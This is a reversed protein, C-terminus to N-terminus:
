RSAVEDMVPSTKRLSLRHTGAGQARFHKEFTTLPFADASVEERTWHPAGAAGDRLDAFYSAQDSAFHFLGDPRLARHVAHLFSDTVIRRNQHRRKPWPDPFLLHIAAVSQPPILYSIAYSSELRLVRANNLRRQGIRTCVRRVRGLLREIGLFNRHPYRAAMEALFTGDGCGLDIEIAGDGAFVDRWAFPTLFNQPVFEAAAATPSLPRAKRMRTLNRRPISQSLGFGQM